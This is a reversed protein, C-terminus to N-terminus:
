PCGILGMKEPVEQGKFIPIVPQGSIETVVL